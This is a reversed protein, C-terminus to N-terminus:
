TRVKVSIGWSRLTTLVDDLSRCLAWPIGRSLCEDRFVIQNPQLSGTPAKMEIFAIRGDDLVFCLDPVGPRVGMAKNKGNQGKSVGGNPTSWWLASCGYRLATAVTEQIDQEATKRARYKTM